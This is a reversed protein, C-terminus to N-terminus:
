MGFENPTSSISIGVNNITEIVSDIRPGKNESHGLYDYSGMNIARIKRGTYRHHSFILVM